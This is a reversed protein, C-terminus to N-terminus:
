NTKEALGPSSPVFSPDVIKLIARMSDHSRAVQEPGFIHTELGVKDEYGDGALADFIEVWNLKQPYDLISRGKIQVNHVRKKPLLAYGDLVPTEKMDAGNMVDWNIGLGKAPVLKMIAALESCKAVNCSTENELLLTVGERGAIDSFKSLIEAVRPFTSEPEQVRSFSFVRIYKCDLIHAAAICRRLDSESQDFRVQERALRKERADPQEPTRRVPETGPLGFKLLNANLFSIGAGGDRFQRAASRLYTEDNLFYNKGKDGPVDRLELWKLGYQRAFAIAGEPSRAIEDSIASIQSHGIRSKGWLSTAALSGLIM